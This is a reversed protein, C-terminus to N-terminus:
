NEAKGFHIQERLQRPQHYEAHDGLGERMQADWGRLEETSHGKIFTQKRYEEDKEWRYINERDTIPDAVGKRTCRRFHDPMVVWYTQDESTGNSQARRVRETIRLQALFYSIQCGKEITM